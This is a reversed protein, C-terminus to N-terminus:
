GTGPEAAAPADGGGGDSEGALAQFMDNLRRVFGAPDELQGGESLLAQDHLIQAWDAFRDGEQDSM